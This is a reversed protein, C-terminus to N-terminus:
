PRDKHKAVLRKVYIMLAWGIVAPVALGAVQAWTM